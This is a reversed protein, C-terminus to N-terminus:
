TLEVLELVKPREVDLSDLDSRVGKVEWWFAQEACGGFGRVTFEGGAVDSAALQAVEDGLKATLLVTRGQSHTLAEFYSPLEIRVEGDVLTAEGRYYVANEPGELCAHVLHQRAPDLPHDILFRKT